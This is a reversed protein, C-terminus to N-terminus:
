LFLRNQVLRGVQLIARDLHFRRKWGGIETLLRDALDEIFSGLVRFESSHHPVVFQHLQLKRACKVEKISCPVAFVFLVRFRLNKLLKGPLEIWVM